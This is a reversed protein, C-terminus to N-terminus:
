APPKDIRGDAYRAFRQPEAGHLPGDQDWPWGGFGERRYDAFAQRVEEISNMVFPGHQAIPEGIPAGQLMLLDAPQSGNEILASSSGSLALMQRRALRQEDVRLEQGDVVYLARMVQEPGAPVTWRAGAGLTILWIAVGSEPRAAWSDPPPPPAATEGMTGAIVRIEIQGSGDDFEKGVPVEHNWFMTFHPEVWKSARPLNLWIQFFDIPNARDSAILPFMESHNIGRGATMWQVDGGGFRASANMSDAHDILGKRVITITEFGRHPHRPFGPVINGHYMSWGDKGSFDQGIIRGDLSAAPGHHKNGAPYQDHHHVCFLFPDLTPWPGDGLSVVQPSGDSGNETMNNEEFAASQVGDVISGDNRLTLSRSVAHDKGQLV